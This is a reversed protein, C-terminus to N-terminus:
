PQDSYINYPKGNNLVAAPMRLSPIQTNSNRIVNLADKALAIIIPDPPLRYAARLRVQLNYLIVAQYEDPLNVPSALSAFGNLPTKTLIHLEYTSAQAIPWFRLVGLPYQTDYFVAQPFTGMSKIIIQNYDEHSNILKLPYDTQQTVGATLIRVYNGDELRDPRAINFDGGIGLTYSQAGTSVKATDVLAYVLWRKRNWQAMMMNLRTFANNVDEGSASQGQGIVGSDLLALNILDAPTTTM